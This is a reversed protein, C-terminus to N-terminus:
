TEVILERVFDGLSIDLREIGQEKLFREENRTMEGPLVAWHRLASRKMIQRAFTRELQNRFRCGMFIFNKGTRIRKVADPIPTQIDIETMVEVFDTDSVLFNNGPSISGLPKYILKRWNVAQDAEAVDGLSQYYHVWTGFHESQSVGHVQGWDGGPSMAGQMANDYWVDVILAPGCPLHALYHHLPSPEVQPAFTETMIGSLSKRHKFNEIFQAAATLNKRVKHPVSVKSVLKEVLSNPSNPVPCNPVLDLVGPGLYPIFRGTELGERILGIENM